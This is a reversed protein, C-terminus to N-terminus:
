GAAASSIAGKRIFIADGIKEFATQYAKPELIPTDLNQNQGYHGSSNMSNVFNLRVRVFGPRIDEVFATAKTQGSSTVGAMAQWFGTKNSSPSAATIFGTDKDASQVIYGLDQFVSLVSGFAIAKSVEFEKTQFAQIQLANPAPKAAPVCGTLSSAALCGFLIYKKM